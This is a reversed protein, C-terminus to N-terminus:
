GGVCGVPADMRQGIHYWPYHEYGPAVHVYVFAGVQVRETAPMWAQAWPDKGWRGRVQGKFGVNAVGGSCAAQSCAPSRNTVLEPVCHPCKRSTRRPGGIDCLEGHRELGATRGEGGEGM